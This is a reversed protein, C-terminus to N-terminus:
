PSYTAKPPSTTRVTSASTNNSVINRLTDVLEAMDNDLDYVDLAAHLVDNNASFLRLLTSHDTESIISEKKLESVLIPFIQQRADQSSMFDDGDDDEDDDDDDDSDSDSVEVLNSSSGPIQFMNQTPDSISSFPINLPQIDKQIMETVIGFMTNIKNNQYNIQNNFYFFMLGIILLIIIIVIFLAYRFLMHIMGSINSM